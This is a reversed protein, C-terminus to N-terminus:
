EAEFVKAASERDAATSKAGRSRLLAQIRGARRYLGPEPPDIKSGDPSHVKGDRPDISARDEVLFRNAATWFLKAKAQENAELAAEAIKLNRVNEDLDAKTVNVCARAGRADMALFALLGLGLVFRPVGSSPLRM